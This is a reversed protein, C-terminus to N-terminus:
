PSQLTEAVEDVLFLFGIWRQLSRDEGKVYENKMEFYLTKM